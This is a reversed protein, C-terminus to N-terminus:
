AAVLANNECLTGPAVPLVISGEAWGQCVVFSTTTVCMFEGVSSGTPCQWLERAVHTVPTSAALTASIAAIIVSARM